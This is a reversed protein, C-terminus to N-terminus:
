QQKPQSAAAVTATSVGAAAGQTALLGSLLECEEKHLDVLEAAHKAIKANLLHQRQRIEAIRTIKADM